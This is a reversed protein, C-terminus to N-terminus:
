PLFPNKTLVPPTFGEAPFAPPPPPPLVVQGNDDLEVVEVPEVVPRVYKAESVQEGGTPVGLPHGPPYVLAPPASPSQPAVLAPPASLSRPAVPNQQPVVQAQVAATASYDLPAHYNSYPRPGAVMPGAVYSAGGSLVMGSSGGWKNIEPQSPLVTWVFFLIYLVTATLAVILCPLFLAFLQSFILALVEDQTLTSVNTGSGGVALSNSIVVGLLINWLVIVVSYLILWKGSRGVDHFRRVTLPLLPYCVALNVLTLLLSLFPVFVATLSIVVGFIINVFILALYAWWYEARTSRSNFDFAKGLYFKLADGFSVM